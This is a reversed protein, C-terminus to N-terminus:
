KEILIKQIATKEPRFIKVFYLGSEFVQLNIEMTSRKFIDSSFVTIGLLNSIEIKGNQILEKFSIIFSGNSPNPFIYFINNNVIENIGVSTCLTTMISGAGSLTTTNNIVTTPSSVDTTTSVGVIVPTTVTTAPNGENCGSNGLSDTKILYINNDFGFSFTNGTIIYGGDATQQVSSGKDDNTGGYNKTWLLDGNSDTKILYVDAAGAGFSNSYGALIYGGDSTQKVSYGFEDDTGGYSRAWLSNGDADTKFLFIDWGGTGFSQTEGVVIYGGDATQQVSNSRDLSDLGGYTKTWMSDGNANLKILYADYYAQFSRTYGSVIYGGDATQQVFTGIDPSYGGFTKSWVPNGSGDTKTVFVEYLIGFSRTWGSIIYGGDSTQQVSYAVDENTGGITKTWDLDGNGDIKLLYFDTLDAGFNETNGVMIYGGDATQQVSRGADFGIGGFTKNWNTNGNSDTKILYVDLDGAGFSSTSGTIIYGGDNTLQVSNGEDFATGGFTKQFTNQAYLLNFPWVIVSFILLLKTM